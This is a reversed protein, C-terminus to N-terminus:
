GNDVTILETQSSGLVNAGVIASHFLAAIAVDSSTICAISAPIKNDRGGCERKERWKM